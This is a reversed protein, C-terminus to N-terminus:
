YNSDLKPLFPIDDFAVPKAVAIWVVVGWVLAAVFTTILAKRWMQPAIPAGPETGPVIDSDAQQKVGFPLVAFLVIWWIVGYIAIAATVTM